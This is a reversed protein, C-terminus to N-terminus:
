RLAHIRQGWILNKISWRSFSVSTPLTMLTDFQLAKLAEILETAAPSGHELNGNDNEWIM